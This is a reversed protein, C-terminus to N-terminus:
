SDDGDRDSGPRVLAPMVERPRRTTTLARRPASDDLRIATLAELAAVASPFRESLKRAMLKRAFAELAPDVTVHPAREAIAPPDKNINALMIEVGTGSFPQLGCLLEYTMVGLAFLDTRPDPADGFAQEPAMYPPTGLVTGTDTLRQGAATDDRERLVAIGFDLIRPVEEGHDDRELVVNEPKLDRHVLGVRHAHELGQLLQKILAVVRAARLPGHGLAAALTEGRALELVMYRQGYPTEGVDLVAVLNKHTLRAALAAERQFRAVMKPDRTLEEHMVKIAVERGVKMHRARYVTGMAGRGLRAEVLYREEVVQGVLTPSPDTM